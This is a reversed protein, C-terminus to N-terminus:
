PSLTPGGAVSLQYAVHHALDRLDWDVDQLRQAFEPDGGPLGLRALAGRCQPLAAGLGQLRELATLGLWDRTRLSGPLLQESLPLLQLQVGPLHRLM